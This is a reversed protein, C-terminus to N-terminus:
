RGRVKNSVKDKWGGTKAEEKGFALSRVKHRLLTAGIEERVERGQGRGSSKRNRRPGRGGEAKGRTKGEGMRVEM